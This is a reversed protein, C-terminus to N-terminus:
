VHARGIQALHGYPESYDTTFAQASQLDAGACFAKSGAGTIVIARTDRRGQAATIAQAMGALVGHSM